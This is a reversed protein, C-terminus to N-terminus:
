LMSFWFYIIRTHEGWQPSELPINNIIKWWRKVGKGNKRNFKTWFRILLLFNVDALLSPIESETPGLPLSPFLPSCHHVKTPSPTCPGAGCTMNLSVCFLHVSSVCIKREKLTKRWRGFQFMKTQCGWSAGMWVRPELNCGFSGNILDWGESQESKRREVSKLLDSWEFIMFNEGFIGLNM